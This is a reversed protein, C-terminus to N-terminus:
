RDRLARRRGSVPPVFPLVSTAGHRWHMELRKDKVNLVIKEFCDHLAANVSIVDSPDSSYWLLANKATRANERLRKVGSAQLRTELMQRAARHQDRKEEEAQIREALARSPTGDLLFALDTIRTSSASVEKDLAAIQKDFDQDTEPVADFLFSVNDVLAQEVAHAAVSNYTCGGSGRRANLCVLRPLSYAKKKIRSIPGNCLPCVALGALINRIATKGSSPMRRAYRPEALVKQVKAFTKKDIAAPYYNEIPPGDPIRTRTRKTPDERHPQFEGYVAPSSLIARIYSAHWVRAGGFPKIKEENFQRTIANISQGSGALQFMRQVLKARQPILRPKRKEGPQLGKLPAILVWGPTRSTLVVGRHIEKRKRRWADAIRKSKTASEEHGRAFMLIAYILQMPDARLITSNYEKGDMLTVITIGANVINQVALQADFACERTIRDFAEVLLYSGRPVQGAHVAKLFEGLAGVDANKGRFASVGLDQLTLETDLPIGHQKSWAAAAETQRELSKGQRQEVTSFRIYSFALPKQSM